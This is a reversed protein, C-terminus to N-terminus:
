EILAPAEVAPISARLKELEEAVECDARLPLEDVVFRRVERLRELARRVSPANSVCSVETEWSAADTLPVSMSQLSGSVETMRDAIENLFEAIAPDASERLQKELVARSHNFRFSGLSKTRNASSLDREAAEAKGRAKAHADRAADVAKEALGHAAEHETRLKRLEAAIAERTRPKSQEANKRRKSM